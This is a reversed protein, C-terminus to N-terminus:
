AGYLYKFSYLQGLRSRDVVIPRYPYRPIRQVYGMQRLVRIPNHPEVIDMFKMPGDYFAIDHVPPADKLTTDWIVEHSRLKNLHCRFSVLHDLLLRTEKKYLREEKKHHWKMVRPKVSTYDSRLIPELFPLRDYMWGRVIDFLWLNTHSKFSECHRTSLVHIYSRTRIEKDANTMSVELLRSVMVTLSKRDKFPVAMTKGTISISFIVHVDELTITMESFPLHFTNTETQWREVIDSICVRNGGDYSIYGLPALSSDNIVKAVREKEPHQTITKWASISLWPKHVEFIGSRLDSPGSPFSTADAGNEGVSSTNIGEGVVDGLVPESEKNARRKKAEAVKQRGILALRASGRLYVKRWKSLGPVLRIESGLGVLLGKQELKLNRWVLDSAAICVIDHHDKTRPAGEVTTGSPNATPAHERLLAADYRRQLLLPSSATAEPTPRLGIASVM